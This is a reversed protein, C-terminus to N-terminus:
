RDVSRGEFEPLALLEDLGNIKGFIDRSEGLYSQASAGDDALIQAKLEDFGLQHVSIKEGADLEPDQKDAEGWALFVHVFWEIKRYPQRVQILRWSNFSYGTEERIERRAAAEASKEGEDIRGGPFSRRLGLHPQEDDVVLIKDGVVCVVSVTDTRKLMEFRHESGDFLEQPWQYTDFIMGRFALEAQDPVLVADAPILKKM